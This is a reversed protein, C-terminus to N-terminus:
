LGSKKYEDLGALIDENGRNEALSRATHGEAVQNTLAGRELLARLVEVHGMDAARHLATFGRNDRANLEAGRDLLFRVQDLKARQVAFMLATAGDTSRVDVPSGNDLLLATITTDECHIAWHLPALGDAGLVDIPVGAALHTEIESAQERAVAIHLLSQTRLPREPIRREFRFPTAFMARNGFMSMCWMAAATPDNEMETPLPVPYETDLAHSRILFDFLGVTINAKEDKEAFTGQIQTIEAFDRHLELQAVLQVTRQWSRVCLVNGGYYFIAWKHEMERPAFLVGEVLRRDIPYTLSTKIVRSAAAPKDIFGTGDDNQMSIANQTCQPDSSMSVMGLTVPRVDLVRVGWPNEPADIWGVVPIESDNGAKQLRTREHRKEDNKM